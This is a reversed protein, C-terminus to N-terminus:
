VGIEGNMLRPLLLDRAEYLRENQRQLNLITEGMPQVTEQFEQALKIPPVIIPIKKFVGKSIEKFTAGTALNTFININALLWCYLFYLPVRENPLCTIFGQNTCAVTTNIAVAGITARSTVMVSFPPFLRASSNALGIESIKDSSAEMFMSQAKTLDSPSYWNLTGDVWYREEDRSPTGGGLIQFTNEVTTKEWGEPAGEVIKVQEYGPFHLRIFWERYLLHISEELLAMRQNNNAILNDYASLIDTIHRQEQL